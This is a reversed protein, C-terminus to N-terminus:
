VSVNLMNFSRCLELNYRREVIRPAFLVCRFHRLFVHCRLVLWMASFIRNFRLDLYVCVLWDISISRNFLQDSISPVFVAHLVSPCVRVWVDVVWGGVRLTITFHTDAKPSLLLLHRRHIYNVPLRFAPKQSLDIPETPPGLPPASFSPCSFALRSIAPCFICYLVIVNRHLTCNRTTIKKSV